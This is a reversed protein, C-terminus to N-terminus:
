NPTFKTTWLRRYITSELNWRSLVKSQRPITDQVHFSGEGQSGDYCDKRSVPLKDGPKMDAPVCMTGYMRCGNRLNQFSASYVNVTPTCKEPVLELRPLMELKNNDAIAKAWFEDFDKPASTTPEIRDIDLGATATGVYRKGDYTAWARLRLFGPRKMTGAEIQMTGDELTICVGVTPTGRSDLIESAKVRKIKM